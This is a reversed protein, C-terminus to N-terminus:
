VHARGIQDVDPGLAEIVGAFEHGMVLPPRRRPSKHAVGELESGCIGARTVRVLVEDGVLPEPEPLVVQEVVGFDTLMVARMTAMAMGRRPPCPRAGMEGYQPPFPASEGALGVLSVGEGPGEGTAVPSPPSQRRRGIQLTGTAGDRATECM